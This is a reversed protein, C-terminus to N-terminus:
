TSMKLLIIGYDTSFAVLNNYSTIFYPYGMGFLDKDEDKQLFGGAEKIKQCILANNRPDPKSTDWLSVTESEDICSIVYDKNAAM